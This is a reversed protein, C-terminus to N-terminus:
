CSSKLMPLTWIFKRWRRLESTTWCIVMWQRFVGTHFSPEESFGESFARRKLAQFPCINSAPPCSCGSTAASSQLTHLRQLIALLFMIGPLFLPLPPSLATNGTLLDECPWLHCLTLVLTWIGLGWWPALVMKITTEEANTFILITPFSRLELFSPFCFDSRVGVQM